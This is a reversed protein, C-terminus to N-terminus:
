SLLYSVKSKITINTVSYLCLIEIGMGHDMIFKFLILINESFFHKGLKLHYCNFLLLRM